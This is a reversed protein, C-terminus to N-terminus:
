DTLFLDDDFLLYKITSQFPLVTFFILPKSQFARPLWFNLSVILFLIFHPNFTPYRYTLNTTLMKNPIWWSCKVDSIWLHLWVNLFSINVGMLQNILLTSQGIKNSCEITLNFFDRLTTRYTLFNANSKIRVFIAFSSFIYKPGFTKTHNLNFRGM